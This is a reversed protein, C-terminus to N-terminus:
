HDMYIKGAGSVLFFLADVVMKLNVLIYINDKIKFESHHVQSNAFRNRNM